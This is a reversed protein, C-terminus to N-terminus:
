GTVGDQAFSRVEASTARQTALESTQVEGLDVANLFAHVARDNDDSAEVAQAAADAPMVAVAMALMMRQMRKM